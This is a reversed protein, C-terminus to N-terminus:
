AQPPPPLLLAPASEVAVTLAAGDGTDAASV